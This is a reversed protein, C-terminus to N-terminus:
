ETLQELGDTPVTFLELRATGYAENAGSLKQISEPLDDQDGYVVNVLDRRVDKIDSVSIAKPLQAPYVCLIDVLEHTESGVDTSGDLISVDISEITGSHPIIAIAEIANSEDSINNCTERTWAALHQKDSFPEVFTVPEARVGDCEVPQTITVIWEAPHGFGADDVYLEAGSEHTAVPKNDVPIDTDDDDSEDEVFDWGDQLERRVVQELM